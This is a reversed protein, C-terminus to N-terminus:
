AYARIEFVNATSSGNTALVRLEIADVTEPTFRHVRKRQYNGTVREIVRRSEGHIAILEYDRATEPQAGRIMQRTTSDSHSLTLQRHLGSDFTLHVERIRKSEPFRLQIWQPLSQDPLSQWQNKYQYWTRNWGNIVNEPGYWGPVSSSAWATASRALDYPDSNSAGIIFADDKLLTQQLEQIAEKRLARPTCSNKVCLAAATGAAQGIVACTAMVRTSGFAVHSASIDRGAFLLNNINKSYLSGFPVNYLPGPISTYPPGPEWIGKPPHLDIPWGGFAVGDEFQEGAQVERQILVHDGIFRRSERKGPIAGIWDLAWNESQPYKGSNKVHDWIGMAAALLEDRIMENDKIIDFEGGWECWWYGYEWSGIGRHPLGEPPLDAAWDPAIFPMPKDYERTMLLISSGLTKGDAQDPALDEGYEDKAERGHRYLAGAEAGLRGDGTCDLFQKAQITFLDETSHRSVTVAKITEGDSMEVGCCHSNMMLTVNPERIVWEYLILDFVNASRQPNTVSEHLRIEEMIGSERSDTDKRGGHRDAGVIHMRVESSANGGLVSRDQVLVVRAGNRAAAISACVGAMGGGIVVVDTELLYRSVVGSKGLPVAESKAKRQIESSPAASVPAAGAVAAAGATQMFRRRSLGGTLEEPTPM